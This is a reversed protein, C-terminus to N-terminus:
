HTDTLAQERERERERETPCDSLRGSKTLSLVAKVLKEALKFNIRHTLLTSHKWTSSVNCTQYSLPKAHIAGVRSQIIFM